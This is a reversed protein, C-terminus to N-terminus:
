EEPLKKLENEWKRGVYHFFKNCFKLMLKIEIGVFGQDFLVFCYKTSYNEQSKQAFFIRPKFVMLFIISVIKLSNITALSTLFWLTVKLCTWKKVWLGKKISSGHNCNCLTVLKNDINKIGKKYLLTYVMLGNFSYELCHEKTDKSVNLLRHEERTNAM